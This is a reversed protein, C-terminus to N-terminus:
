VEPAPAMAKRVVSFMIGSGIAGTISWMIMYDIPYGIVAVMMMMVWGIAWGVCWGVGILAVKKVSLTPVARRLVVGSATGGIALGVLGFPLCYERFIYVAYWLEDWFEYFPWYAYIGFYVRMSLAYVVAGITWFVVAQSIHSAQLASCLRRLLFWTSFGGCVMIIAPAIFFVMYLSFLSDSHVLADNIYGFVVAIVAWCVAAIGTSTLLAKSTPRAKTWNTGTSGSLSAEKQDTQGFPPADYEKTEDAAAAASAKRIEVAVATEDRLTQGDPSGATVTARITKKGPKDPWLRMKIQATRGPALSIPSSKDHGALTVVVNKLTDYGINQLNAKWVSEAGALVEGPPDLVLKIGGLAQVEVSVADKKRIKHGGTSVATVSAEISRTGPTEFTLPFLIMEEQNSALAIPKNEQDALVVVVKKLDCSGDNHLRVSWDTQESLMVTEPPTLQLQISLDLVTAILTAEGSVKVGSKSIATVSAVLPQQNAKKFTKQFRVETKEKPSLSTAQPAREDDFIVAIEDLAEDGDNFLHVTWTGEKGAIVEEPARLGVEISPNHLDVVVTDEADVPKGAETRAAVTASVTMRGVKTFTQRFRQRSAQGPPLHPIEKTQEGNFTIAIDSLNAHGDNAVLVTWAGEAGVILDWPPVLSLGICPHQIHRNHAQALLDPINHGKYTLFAMQLLQLWAAEAEAWRADNHHTLARKFLEDAQLLKEWEESIAAVKAVLDADEPHIDLARQYAKIADAGKYEDQALLDGQRTWFGIEFAVIEADSPLLSKLDKIADATEDFAGEEELKGAHAMLRDRIPRVTLDSSDFELARRYPDLCRTLEGKEIEGDGRARWIEALDLRLKEHAPVLELAQEYQFLAADAEGKELLLKGYRRRARVLGDRASIEDIQHAKEFAEIAPEIEGLEFLVQALGLQAGSHNPNADLARQYEDRAYALDGESHADRANEYLRSARKSILDVDRRASELPHAKLIWRRVLEIVFQYNDSDAQRRLMDWDVLRDPADTLELGTLVIKHKELIRRIDEQSALGRSDSVHAVAAMIFREARPLGDWFWNLAGHGSEITQDVLKLVDAGTVQRSNRKKADNFSEFCVLQTFYPHGATLHLITEVADAAYTLFDKVPATILQTANEEKLLGIQRYVAQKFISHFHTTLEEIRRGVVFVFVIQRQHMILDQLYPFLTESAAGTKAIEDGLIDFEDFLLLLRKHDLHHHIAPLFDNRFYRGDNDFSSQEPFAIDLARAITRSLDYLVESLLKQEKGQLDFYIPVVAGEQRNRQAIQHLLSTKGVRRQGYFVVVNQQETELIDDIFVFADERGFFGAEGTLPVGIVYPNPPFRNGGM